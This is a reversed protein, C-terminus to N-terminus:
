FPPSFPFTKWYDLMPQAPTDLASIAAKAAAARSVPTAYQEVVAPEPIARLVMLIAICM